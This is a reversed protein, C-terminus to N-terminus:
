NNRSAVKENLKVRWLHTGALVVVEDGALAFNAIGSRTGPEFFQANFVGLVKGQANHVTMGEGDGIWVRGKDDVHLGDPSGLRSYSFVRRNVPMM